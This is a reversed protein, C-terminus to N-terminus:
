ENGHGVKKKAAQTARRTETAAETRAIHENLLREARAAREPTNTPPKAILADNHTYGDQAAYTFEPSRRGVRWRQWIQEGASEETECIVCANLRGDAHWIAILWYSAKPEPKLKKASAM